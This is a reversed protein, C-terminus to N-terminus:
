YIFAGDASEAAESEVPEEKKRQMEAAEEDTIETIRPEKFEAEEKLKQARRREELRKQDEERKKKMADAKKRAEVSHKNFAELVMQQAKEIGAGTYFDTKRSLFSFLVDFLQPVGGEMQQALGLLLGDFREVESM